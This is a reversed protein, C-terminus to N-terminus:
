EGRDWKLKNRQPIEIELLDGQKERMAAHTANLDRWEALNRYIWMRKSFVTEDVREATMRLPPRVRVVGDREIVIDTTQREAGPLLQYEIDQVQRLQM